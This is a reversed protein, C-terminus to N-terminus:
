GVGFRVQGPAVRDARVPCPLDETTAGRVQEGAQGVVDGEVDIQAVPARALYRQDAVSRYACVDAAIARGDFGDDAGVAFPDRKLAEGGVQHAAHGGVVAVDVDPAAQGVGQGQGARAGAAGAAVGGGVRGAEAVVALDNGVQAVGIVQD